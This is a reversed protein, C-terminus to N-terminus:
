PEGWLRVLNGIAKDLLLRSDDAPLAGRLRTLDLLVARQEMGRIMSQVWGVAALREGRTVPQVRHLDGTLYLAMTGAKPKATRFGDGTAVALEGGEYSEPDSLFLTYSFDTRMRAGRGMVPEDVHLGYTDGVRYRNFTVESLRAPRSHLQFAVNRDLARRVLAGLERVEVNEPDAQQNAKVKRATSGATAGGDHFPAQALGVRIAQLQDADIVDDILIM